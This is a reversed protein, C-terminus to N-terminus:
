SGPIIAPYGPTGYPWGEPFKYGAPIQGNKLMWYKLARGGWRQENRNSANQVYADILPKADPHGSDGLAILEAAKANPSTDSKYASILPDIAEPPVGGSRLSDAAKQRTVPNPDQLGAILATKSVPPPCGLMLSVAVGLWLLKLHDRM